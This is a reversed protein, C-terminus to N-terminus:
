RSKGAVMLATDYTEMAKKQAEPVTLQNDWTFTFLAKQADWAQAMEPIIPMPDSYLAQEQIGKLYVDDRLGEIGSIDKYAAMKGTVRYLLTEGEVSVLFDAFAFAAGPNNTYSSVSAVINGSFCRPQNGNITPLKTVGFNVGNKVADEIAWPGSVTFPVLGRQFATITAEYTADAVNVNYYKRFSHHFEVGRRAAASDWGPQRYDDMNPGFLSMGFATLFFYNHYSDDVQWRFAYKNAAPDNYGEAFRQIEEFSKPVPANGLLDKNYFFAINETSLPVAYLEEEFTCTRISSDLMLDRYNRSLEEPFPECVGDIIANAMHDHAMLFVDPGIGAPGDLSVKGRTETYPVNQYNVTVQPYQKNFAEILAEAFDDHDLWVMISGSIASPDGVARGAQNNSGKSGCSALMLAAAALLLVLLNKKM